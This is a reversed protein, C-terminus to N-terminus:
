RFAGKVEENLLVVLSWIGIGEGLGCCGSCSICPIAVLISTFLALGYSKLVLMRSGALIALFATLLGLIAEGFFAYAYGNVMESVTWGAKKLQELAPPNQKALMEELLEPPTRMLVLGYWGIIGGLLLNVVGVVILCIAPGLVRSRIAESYGRSAWPDPEGFREDGQPPLYDGGSFGPPDNSM